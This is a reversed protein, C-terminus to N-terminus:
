KFINKIFSWMGLQESEMYRNFLKDSLEEVKKPMAM